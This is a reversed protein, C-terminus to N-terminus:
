QILGSFIIAPEWSSVSGDDISIIFSAGRSTSGSYFQFGFTAGAHGLSLDLINIVGLGYKIIEGSMPNFYQKKVTELTTKQSFLNGKTWESIFKQMDDLTSIIEGAAGAITAPMTVKKGKYYATARNAPSKQSAFYTQHMKLPNLIHIQIYQHYKMGSLKEILMGLLIYNTNSYKFKSGPMFSQENNKKAMEILQEPKFRLSSDSHLAIEEENKEDLFYDPLGSTHNLLHFIRVSDIYNKGEKTYLGNYLKPNPLIDVLRTQLSIKKKEVLQIISTATFMKTCSGIEIIKSFDSIPQDIRGDYGSYFSAQGPRSIKSIVRCHNTQAISRTISDSQIAISDKPIEKAKFYEISNYAQSESISGFSIFIICHWLLSIM